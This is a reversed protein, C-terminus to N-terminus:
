GPGLARPRDPLPLDAPGLVCGPERRPSAWPGAGSRRRRPGGAVAPRHGPLPPPPDPSGRGRPHRRGARGGARRPGRGDASDGSATRAFSRVALGLVVAMVDDDAEGQNVAEEAERLAGDLDLGFVRCVSSEALPWATSRGLERHLEILREEHPIAEHPRALLLLSRSLASRLGIEADPAVPRSLIEAATAEAETLRGAWALVDVLRASALDRRPDTPASLEIARRLLSEAGAPDQRAIEDAAALLVTVAETSGPAAGLALQEAVRVVPAGAAELAHAIGRHLELRVSDPLASLVAERVLDHRYSLTRGDDVFLRAEVLTQVLPYLDTPAQSTVTALDGLTFRTGLLAALTAVAQLRDDLRAMRRRVTETLTTPLRLDGPEGATDIVGDGELLGADRLAAVMEVILLPNGACGALLTQLRPGPTATLIEATLAEVAAVDLRTLEISTGVVGADPGEVLAVFAALEGSRPVRRAAAAVLLPLDASRRVLVALTALTSADAWHLDDLCLAVPGNVCLAEIRNTLDDILLSQVGPDSELVALPALPAGALRDRVVQRAEDGLESDDMADLLPAFPRTAGLEDGRGVLLVFGQDTCRTACAELLSSKGIGAEGEILLTQGAGARAQAVLADVADLHEDRGVLM